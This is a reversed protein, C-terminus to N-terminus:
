VYRDNIGVALGCSPVTVLIEKVDSILCLSASGDGRQQMAMLESDSDM